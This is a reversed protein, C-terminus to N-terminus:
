SLHPGFIEPLLIETLHCYDRGLLALGQRPLCRHWPAAAERAEQGALWWRGNRGSIGGLSLSVFRRGGDQGRTSNPPGEREGQRTATCSTFSGPSAGEDEAVATLCPM